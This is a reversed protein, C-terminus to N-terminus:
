FGLRCHLSLFVLLILKTFPVSVFDLKYLFDKCDTHDALEDYIQSDTWNHQMFICIYLKKSTM